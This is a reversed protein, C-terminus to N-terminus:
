LKIGLKKLTEMDLNGVPLSNDKQFKTLAAKTRENLKSDIPGPDYGRNLLAQQIQGITHSTIQDGCLVERWETFGGPKVLRRKTVTTYAIATEEGAKGPPPSKIEQYQAPVEVLCWVFCNEPDTGLCSSDGKRKIWKTTAPAIEVRDPLTEYPLQKDADSGQRVAVPIARVQETYTEYQDPIYCKAYCKGPQANPPM